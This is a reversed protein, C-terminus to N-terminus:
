FYFENRYYNDVLATYVDSYRATMLEVKCPGFAITMARNAMEKYREYDKLMDLIADALAEHAGPHVLRGTNNDKIFENISGVDTAIIPIGAAIAELMVIPLGEFLSPLILADISSYILQTSDCWGCISACVINEEAIRRILEDKQLGEGYFVVHFDTRVDQILKVADLLIHQGKIPYMLGVCGIILKNIPLRQKSKSEVSSPMNEFKTTDVGNYIVELRTNSISLRKETFDRVTNSVCVFKDTIPALSRDLLHSLLKNKTPHPNINHVTVIKVPTKALVAAIRGHTDPSESHTHIVDIKLEKLKCAINWITKIRGESKLNFFILNINNSKAIAQNNADHPSGIRNLVAIWVNFRSKDLHTAADWAVRVAGSLRINGLLYLINIKNRV